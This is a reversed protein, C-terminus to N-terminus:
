RELTCACAAGRRLAQEHRAPDPRDVAALRPCGRTATESQALVDLLNERIRQSLDEDEISDLDEVGIGVLRDKSAHEGLRDEAGERAAHVDHEDAGRRALQREPVVRDASPRDAVEDDSRARTTQRGVGTRRPWQPPRDPM